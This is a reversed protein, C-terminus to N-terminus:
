LPSFRGEFGQRSHFSLFVRFVAFLNSSCPSANTCRSTPIRKTHNQNFRTRNKKKLRKFVASAATVYWLDLCCWLHTKHKIQMFRSSKIKVMFSQRWKKKRETECSYGNRFLRRTVGRRQLRFARSLSPLLRAHRSACRHARSTVKRLFKELSSSEKAAM